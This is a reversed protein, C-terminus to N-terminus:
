VMGATSLASTLCTERAVSQERPCLCLWIGGMSCPHADSSLRQNPSPSNSLSPLCQPQSIQKILTQPYPFHRTSGPLSTYMSTRYMSILSPSLSICETDEYPTRLKHPSNSKDLPAWLHQLSADTQNLYVCPM